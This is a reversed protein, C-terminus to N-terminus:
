LITTIITLNPLRKIQQLSLFIREIRSCRKIRKGSIGGKEGIVGEVGWGISVVDCVILFAFAGKDSL